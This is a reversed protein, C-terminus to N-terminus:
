KVADRDEKGIIPNAPQANQPIETPIIHGPDILMEECFHGLPPVAINANKAKAPSKPAVMLGVITPLTELIVPPLRLIPSSTAVTNGNISIKTNSTRSRFNLLNGFYPCYRILTTM